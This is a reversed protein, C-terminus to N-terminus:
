MWFHYQYVDKDVDYKMLLKDKLLPRWKPHHRHARWDLVRRIGGSLPGNKYWGWNRWTSLGYQPTGIFSSIEMEWTGESGTGTEPEKWIIIMNHGSYFTLICSKVIAVSSGLHCHLLHCSGEGGGLVLSSNCSFYLANLRFLQHSASSFTCFLWQSVLLFPLALSLAPRLGMSLPQSEPPIDWSCLEGQSSYPKLELGSEGVRLVLAPFPYGCLM